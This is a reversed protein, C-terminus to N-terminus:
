LIGAPVDDGLDDDGLTQQVQELHAQESWLEFRDGMGLLVAKREIGIATRMSAPIKIRGNGDPVVPESASASLKRRLVRNRAKDISLGNVWKHLAEWTPYPFIWLCGSEYPNYTVVLRQDDRCALV